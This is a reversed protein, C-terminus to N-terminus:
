TRHGKLLEALARIAGTNETLAERLCDSANTNSRLVIAHDDRSKIEKHLVRTLEEIAEDTVWPGYARDREERTLGGPKEDDDPLPYVEPGLAHGNPKKGESM